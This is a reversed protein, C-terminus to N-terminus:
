FQKLFKENKKFEFNFKSNLRTQYRGLGFSSRVSKVPKYVRARARARAGENFNGGGRIADRGAAYIGGGVSPERAEEAAEKRGTAPESKPIAARERPLHTVNAVVAHRRQAAVLVAADVM